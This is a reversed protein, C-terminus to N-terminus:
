REAPIESFPDSAAPEGVQSALVQRLFELREQHSAGPDLFVIPKGRFLCMSGPKGGLWSFRIEYGSARVRDILTRELKQQDPNLNRNLVLHDSGDTARSM